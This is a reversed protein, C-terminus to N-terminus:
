LVSKRKDVTGLCVSYFRPQSLQYCGVGGGGKEM